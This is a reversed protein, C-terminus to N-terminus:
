KLPKISRRNTPCCFSMEFRPSLPKPLRCYTLMLILCTGWVMFHLPEVSSRTTLKVGVSFCARDSIKVGLSGVTRAAFVVIGDRPYAKYQLPSIVDGNSGIVEVVAEPSWRGYHARYTFDDLKVMPEISVEEGNGNRIPIFIKGNQHRALQASSQYDLWNSSRSTSVGVEIDQPDANKANMAVVVQQPIARACHPNLFLYSTKSTEYEIESTLYAPSAPLPILEYEPENSASFGTTLIVSFRVYRAYLDTYSVDANARYLEDVEHYEFGNTSVDIKWSGNTNEFLNFLSAVRRIKVSDGLDVVFSYEGYGMSGIAEGVFIQVIEDEFEDSLVTM